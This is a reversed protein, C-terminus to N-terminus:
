GPARSPAKEPWDVHVVTTHPRYWRAWADKDNALKRRWAAACADAIWLLPDASAPAQEVPVDLPLRGADRLRGITRSDTARLKPDERQEILAHTVSEKNV